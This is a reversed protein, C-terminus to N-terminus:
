LAEKCTSEADFRSLTAQTLVSRIVAVAEPYARVEEACLYFGNRNCSQSLISWVARSVLSKKCFEKLDAHILVENLRKSRESDAKLSYAMEAITAFYDKFIQHEKRSFHQVVLNELAAVKKPEVQNAWEIFEENRCSSIALLSTFVQLALIVRM